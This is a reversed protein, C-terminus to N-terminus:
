RKPLAAGTKADIDVVTTHMDRGVLRVVPAWAKDVYRTEFKIGYAERQLDIGSRRLIMAMSSPVKELAPTRGAFGAVQKKTEFRHLAGDRYRYLSTGQISGRESCTTVVFLEPVGSRIEVLRVGAVRAAPEALEAVAVLDAATCRPIAPGAEVVSVQACAM